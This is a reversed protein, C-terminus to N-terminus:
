TLVTYAPIGNTFIAAMAIQRLAPAFSLHVWSGETIVKDFKIGSVMIARVIQEPTGFQPCVFDAAFGKPHAKASFYVEWSADDMNRYHRACWGVYDAHALVKELAECRFADNIHMPFGLMARVQELGNALISLNAAALAWPINEIGLRLATSSHTLEEFTFHETLQMIADKHTENWGAHAKSVMAALSADDRM